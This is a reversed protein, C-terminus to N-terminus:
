YKLTFIKFVLIVISDLWLKLCLKLYCESVNDEQGHELDGTKLHVHSTSTM